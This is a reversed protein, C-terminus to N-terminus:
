GLSLTRGRNKKSKGNGKVQSAPYRAISAPAPIVKTTWLLETKVDAIVGRTPLNDTSYEKIGHIIKEMMRFGSLGTEKRRPMPTILM